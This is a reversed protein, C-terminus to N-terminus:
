GSAPISTAFSAIVDDLEAWNTLETHGSPHRQVGHADVIRHLVMRELANLQRDHVAGAVYAILDPQWGVDHLFSRVVEDLATRERENQSAATLSVGSLFASPGRGLAAVHRLIFSALAPDHKSRHM